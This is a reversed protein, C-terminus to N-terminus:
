TKPLNLDSYRWMTYTVCVSAGLFSPFCLLTIFITTMQSVRYPRRPVQCNMMVSTQLCLLAPTLPHIFSGGSRWLLWLTRASSGSQRLLAAAAQPDARGAASPQLPRRDQMFVNLTTLPLGHLPKMSMHVNLVLGADTRLDPGSCEPRYRVGSEQEEEARESFVVQLRCLFMISGVLSTGIRDRSWFGPIINKYVLTEFVVVM